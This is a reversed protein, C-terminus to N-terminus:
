NVKVATSSRRYEQSMPSRKSGNSAITEYNNFIHFVKLQYQKHALENFTGSVNHPATAIQLVPNNLDNGVAKKECNYFLTKFRGDYSNLMCVERSAIPIWKVIDLGRFFSAALTVEYVGMEARHTIFHLQM